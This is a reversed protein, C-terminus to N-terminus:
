ANARLYARVRARDADSGKKASPTYPKVPLPAGGWAPVAACKCHDHSAFDATAESYVAGRSILMQCFACSGAGVRQWGTAAPDALASETVTLRSFNAIRRQTGGEILVRLANVDTAEATAWAILSDAGIQEITAPTAQFFRRVEAEDRSEDYWDAALTAAAAGYTEIVAPLTDRLVAGARATNEADRWAANLDRFALTALGAVGKRLLTPSPM